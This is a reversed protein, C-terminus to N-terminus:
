KTKRVRSDEAIKKNTEMFHSNKGERGNERKEGENMLSRFDTKSINKKEIIQPLHEMEWTNHYIGIKGKLSGDKINESPEYVILCDHGNYRVNGLLNIERGPMNPEHKKKAEPGMFDIEHSINDMLMRSNERLYKRHGSVVESFAKQLDETNEHIRGELDKKEDETILPSSRLYERIDKISNKEQLGSIQRVALVTDSVTLDRPNKGTGDTNIDSKWLEDLETRTKNLEERYDPQKIRLIVNEMYKEPDALSMLNDFRGANKTSIGPFYMGTETLPDIESAEKLAETLRTYGTGGMQSERDVLRSLEESMENFDINHSRAQDIFLAFDERDKEPIKLSVALEAVGEKTRINGFKRGLEDADHQGKSLNLEGDNYTQGHSVWREAMGKVIYNMNKRVSYEKVETTGDPGAVTTKGKEPYGPTMLYSGDPQKEFNVRGALVSAEAATKFDEPVSIAYFAGVMGEVPEAEKSGIGVIQKPLCGLKLSEIENVNQYSKLKEREARDKALRENKRDTEAQERQEEEKKKEIQIKLNENKSKAANDIENLKALLVAAEAKARIAFNVRAKTKSNSLDNVELTRGNVNLKGNKYSDSLRGILGLEDKLKKKKEDSVSGAKKVEQLLKKVNEVCLEMNYFAESGRRGFSLKAKKQDEKVASAFYGSAYGSSLYNDIDVNKEDDLLRNKLNNNGKIWEWRNIRAENLTTNELKKVNEALEKHEKRFKSAGPDNKWGKKIIEKDERDKRFYDDYFFSNFVISMMIDPTLDVGAIPAKYAKYEDEDVSSIDSVLENEGVKLREGIEKISADIEEYRDIGYRMSAPLNRYDSSLLAKWEKTDRLTGSLVHKLSDIKLAYGSREGERVKEEMRNLFDATDGNSADNQVGIGTYVNERFGAIGKMRQDFLDRNLNGKSDLPVYYNRLFTQVTNRNKACMEGHEALYALESLFHAKGHETKYEKNLEEGIYRYLEEDIEPM